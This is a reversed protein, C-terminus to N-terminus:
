TLNKELIKYIETLVGLEPRTKKHKYNFLKFLYEKLKTDEGDMQTHYFTEMFFTWFYEYHIGREKFNIREKKFNNITKDWCWTFHGKQNIEDDMVDSGLYTSDMLTHISDLFDYFLIIKETSIDYARYWVETQQGYNENHILPNDSM